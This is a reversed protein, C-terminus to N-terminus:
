GVSVRMCLHFDVEIRLGDIQYCVTRRQERVLSSWVHSLLRTGAQAKVVWYQEELMAICKASQAKMVM